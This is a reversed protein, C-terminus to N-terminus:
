QIQAKLGTGALRDAARPLVPQHQARFQGSPLPPMGRRRCGGPRLGRM